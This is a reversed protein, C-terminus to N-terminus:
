ADSERNHDDSEIEPPTKGITELVIQKQVVLYGKTVERMYLWAMLLTGVVFFGCVSWYAYALILQVSIIKKIRIQSAIEKRGMETSSDQPTSTILSRNKSVYHNISPMLVMTGYISMILVVVIFINATTRLNRARQSVIGDLPLSM